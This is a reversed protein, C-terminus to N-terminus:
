IHICLETDSNGGKTSLVNLKM